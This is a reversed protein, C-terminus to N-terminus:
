DITYLNTSYNTLFHIIPLCTFNMQVRDFINLELHGIDKTNSPGNLETKIVTNLTTANRKDISKVRTLFMPIGMNVAEQLELSLDEPVSACCMKLVSSSLLEPFLAQLVEIKRELFSRLSQDNEFTSSIAGQVSCWYLKFFYTNFEEEFGSWTQKFTKPLEFYWNSHEEHFFFPMLSFMQNELDSAPLFKQVLQEFKNIWISPLFSPVSFKEIEELM